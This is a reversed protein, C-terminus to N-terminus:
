KSFYNQLFKEFRERNKQMAQVSMGYKDALPRCCKGKKGHLYYNLMEVAWPKWEALILRLQLLALDFLVADEMCHCDAITDVLSIEANKQIPADISLPKEKPELERNRAARMHDCSWARHVDRSVEYVLCDRENRDVIVDNIFYRRNQPLASNNQAVIEAWEKPSIVTLAISGDPQSKNALYTIKM